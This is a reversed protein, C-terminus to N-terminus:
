PSRPNMSRSRTKEEKKERRARDAIPIDRVSRHPAFSSLFAPQSMRRESARANRVWPFTAARRSKRPRALHSRGIIFGPPRVGGRSAINRQLAVSSDPTWTRRSNVNVIRSVLIAGRSIRLASQRRRSQCLKVRFKCTPDRILM